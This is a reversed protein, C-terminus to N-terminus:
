SIQSGYSGPVRQAQGPRYHSQKAKEKENSFIRSGDNGYIQHTTSWADYNLTSLFFWSSTV